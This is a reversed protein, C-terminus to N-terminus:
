FLGELWGKKKPQIIPTDGNDQGRGLAANERIRQAEKQPDVVVGAPPPTRWFMLSDVFGQSQQAEAVAEGNVAARINAPPTPGAAQVLAAQGPSAQGTPVGTLATQPVLAQEAQQQESLQQPRPAGPAPPRINFEPPMSLPTQTTVTYDDPADRVMGFSRSLDTSCGALLTATLALTALAPPRLARTASARAPLARAPLAARCSVPPKLAQDPM